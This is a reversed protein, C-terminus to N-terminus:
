LVLLAIPVAFMALLFLVINRNSATAWSVGALMVRSYRDYCLTLILASVTAVSVVEVTVVTFASASGILVAALLTDAFTTINAGMIYPIVNERRIYGRASLPVLISLSLSVSMSVLTVGAGLAFMAWPRYVLRSVRGVRSDRIAVQPLSRDFMAFSAMVLLLGVPFLALGPLHGTLQRVLPQYMADVVSGVALASSPQWPDLAGSRLLTLGIAMAAVYTTGTVTLSLLGMSLCTARDHGRLMRAFGILLVMFAAGLRSGTIMSFASVETLVGADLFALATAAIPSGSLVAYSLLWGLGLGDHVGHVTLVGGLEPALARAGERLLLIALVFLFLSSAFLCSKGLRRAALRAISPDAALRLAGLAAPASRLRWPWPRRESAGELAQSSSTV